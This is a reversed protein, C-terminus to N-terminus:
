VVRSSATSSSRFRVVNKDNKPKARASRAAVVAVLSRTVGCTSASRRWNQMTSPVGAWWRNPRFTRVRLRWSTSAIYNALNLFWCLHRTAGAVCAILKVRSVKIQAYEVFVCQHLTDWQMGDLNCFAAESSRGAASWLHAISFKRVASEPTNARAYAANINSMEEHYLPTASNDIKKGDKVDRDFGIKEMNNKLGRLWKAADTNCKDLCTFFQKVTDGGVGKLRDNAMNLLTRFNNEPGKLPQGANVRGPPILYVHLLFYALREWMPKSILDAEELKDWSRHELLEDQLRFLNFLHLAGSHTSTTSEPMGGAELRAM